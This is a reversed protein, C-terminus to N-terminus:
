RLALHGSFDPAKPPLVIRSLVVWTPDNVERGGAFDIRPM